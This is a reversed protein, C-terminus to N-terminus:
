AVKLALKLMDFVADDIKGPIAAALKDLFYGVEVAGIVKVDAGKGDYGLTLVVKGSELALDFGLESSIEVKDMEM